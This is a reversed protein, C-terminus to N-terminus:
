WARAEGACSLAFMALMMLCAGAILPHGFSSAARTAGAHQSTRTGTPAWSPSGRTRSASRRPWRPSGSCRASSCWGAAHRADLLTSGLALGTGAAIIIYLSDQKRAGYAMGFVFVAVSVVVLAGLAYGSLAKRRAGYFWFVFTAVAGLLAWTTKPDLHPITPAVPIVRVPMALLPAAAVASGYPTTLLWTAALVIPLVVVLQLGHGHVAAWGALVGCPLSGLM